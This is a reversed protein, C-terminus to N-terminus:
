LRGRSAMGLFQQHRSADSVMASWRQGHSVAARQQVNGPVASASICGLGLLLSSASISKATHHAPPLRPALQPAAPRSCPQPCLELFKFMAMGTGSSPCEPHSHSCGWISWQWGAGQRRGPFATSSPGLGQSGAGAHSVRFLSRALEAGVTAM